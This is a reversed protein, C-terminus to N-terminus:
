VKSKWWFLGFSLVLRRYTYNDIGAETINGSQDFAVKALVVWPDSPCEPCTPLDGQALNGFVPSTPLEAATALAGIEYGDRWRSYECRTDDCGCGVPQVRVPRTMIEKYKVAVYVPSSVERQVESCWPDPPELCPEGAVGTVGSSRLDVMSECAIYIDDGYPGLIFGPEVVVKWAEGEKQEKGKPRVKAGCVVGWGHLLRNHLRLKSRIYEHELTLDDPTMLQRPYYRPRETVAAGGLQENCNTTNM